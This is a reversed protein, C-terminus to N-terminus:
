YDILWSDFLTANGIEKPLAIEGFFRRSELLYWCMLHCARTMHDETIAGTIGHEYVHFLAAIRTANDAAKSTVDKINTLEGGTRLEQETDNFFKTWKLVRESPKM